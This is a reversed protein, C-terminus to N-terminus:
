GDTMEEDLFLVRRILPLQKAAKLKAKGLTLRAESTMESSYETLQTQQWHVYEPALAEAFLAFRLAM